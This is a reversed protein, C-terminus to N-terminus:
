IRYVYVSYWVYMVHLRICIYSQSFINKYVKNKFLDKGIWKVCVIIVIYIHIFLWIIASSLNNM